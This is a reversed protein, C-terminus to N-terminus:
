PPKLNDYNSLFYTTSLPDITMLTRWGNVPDKALKDVYPKIAYSLVVSPGDPSNAAAQLARTDCCCDANPCDSDLSEIQYQMSNSSPIVPM